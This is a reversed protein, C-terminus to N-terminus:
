DAAIKKSQMQRASDAPASIPLTTPGPGFFTPNPAPSPAPPPALAPAPTLVPAPTPVSGTAPIAALREAADRRAAAAALRVDRGYIDDRFEVAGGDDAFATWYLLYVPISHAMQVRRTDGVAIADDIEKLNWTAKAGTLVYVALERPNELRICGHSLTRIARSFLPHSPTDHLYVDFENPLEFKIRGLANFEVDIQM